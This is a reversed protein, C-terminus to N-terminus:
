DSTGNFASRHELSVSQHFRVLQGSAQSQVTYVFVRGEDVLKGTYLPAGVFIEDSGDGTIDVTYVTAGFKTGVQDKKLDTSEIAVTTIGKCQM